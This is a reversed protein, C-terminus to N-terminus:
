IRLRLTTLYLSSFNPEFAHGAPPGRVLHSRARYFSSVTIDDALDYDFDQAFMLKSISNDKDTNKIDVHLFDKYYSALDTPFSHNVNKHEAHPDNQHEHFHDFKTVKHHSSDVHHVIHADYLAHVASHPALPLLSPLVLALILYASVYNRMLM